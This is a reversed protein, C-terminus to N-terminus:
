ILTKIKLSPDFIGLFQINFIHNGVIVHVDMNDGFFNEMGSKGFPYLTAKLNKKYHCGKYITIGTITM